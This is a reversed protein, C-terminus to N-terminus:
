KKLFNMLFILSYYESDIDYSNGYSLTVGYQYSLGKKQSNYWAIEKELHKTKCNKQIVELKDNEDEDHRMTEHLEFKNGVYFETKEEHDEVEFLAKLKINLGLQKCCIFFNADEGKLIQLPNNQYLDLAETGYLHCCHYGFWDFKKKKDKIFTEIVKKMKQDLCDMNYSIQKVKFLNFTLTIRHGELVEDINHPCNNFFAVWNIM